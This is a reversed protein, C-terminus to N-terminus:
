RTRGRLPQDPQALSQRLMAVGGPPVQEAGAMSRMFLVDESRRGAVQELSDDVQGRLEGSVVAYAIGLALLIAIAVAATGALLLRRRFSMRDLVAKV